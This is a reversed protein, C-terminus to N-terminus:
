TKRLKTIMERTVFCDLIFKLAELCGYVAEDCMIQTKYEGPCYLIM